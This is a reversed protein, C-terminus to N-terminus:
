AGTVVQFWTAHVFRIWCRITGLQVFGIFSSALKDNRTPVRRSRKIKNFLRGIRKRLSYTAKDIALQARHARRHRAGLRRPSAREADAPEADREVAQHALARVALQQAAHASGQM